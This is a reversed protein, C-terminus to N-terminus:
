PPPLVVYPIFEVSVWCVTWETDVLLDAVWAVEEIGEISALFTYQGDDDLLLIHDGDVEFLIVSL